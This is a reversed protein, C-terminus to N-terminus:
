NTNRFGIEEFFNIIDDIYLDPENVIAHGNDKYPPKIILKGKGGAKIFSNFWRNVADPSHNDNEAYIWLAPVRCITGFYKASNELASEVEFSRFSKGKALGFNTAGSINVIGRIGNIDLTSSALSVWGGQSQGIIVIRDKTIGSNTIMYNIAGRIDKAGALGSEEPTDLFESDPGESNGYGRRVLMMVLYGREALAKCLSQYHFVEHEDVKPLPGHRGHTMIILSHQTRNDLPTYIMAELRYSKNDILASFYIHETKIQYTDARTNIPILGM